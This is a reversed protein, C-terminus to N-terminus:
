PTFIIVTNPISLAAPSTNSILTRQPVASNKHLEGAQSVIHQEEMLATFRQWVPSNTAM